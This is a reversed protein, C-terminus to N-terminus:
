DRNRIGIAHTKVIYDKKWRRKTIGSGFGKKTNVGRHRICTSFLDEANVTNGFRLALRAQAAKDKQVRCDACIGIILGRKYNGVRLPGSVIRYSSNRKKKEKSM